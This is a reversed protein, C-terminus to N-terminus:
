LVTTSAALRAHYADIVDRIPGQLAVQGHDLWLGIDCLSLLTAPSHSVCLFTAGRRRLQQIREHCKEQFAEDGVALVEDVILIDPDVNIATSFALRLIMGNSYTRLPEDIFESLSAFEVISDFLIDAQKRSFGLLAANLKVNESGTLDPHFGSGLELLAAVRGNTKIAGTDPAGLGSILNLLTSKGAGNHGCIGLSAGKRVSFSVDKLAYFTESNHGKLLSSVYQRLLRQGAHRRFRKVVRNCTLIDM